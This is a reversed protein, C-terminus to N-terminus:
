VYWHIAEITSNRLKAIGSNDYTNARSVDKPFNIFHYPYM